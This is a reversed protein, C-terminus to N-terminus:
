AAPAGAVPVGPSSAPGPPPGYVLPPDCACHGMNPETPTGGNPREYSIRSPSEIFGGCKHCHISLM